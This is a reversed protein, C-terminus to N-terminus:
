KGTFTNFDYYVKICMLIASSGKGGQNFSITSPAIIVTGAVHKSKADNTWTKSIEPNVSKLWTVLLQKRGLLLKSVASKIIELLFVDLVNM